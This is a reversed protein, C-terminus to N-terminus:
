YYILILIYINKKIVITDRIKFYCPKLTSLAWTFCTKHAPICCIIESRCFYIISWFERCRFWWFIEWLLSGTIPENPVYSFNIVFLIHSHRSHETFVHLFCLTLIFHEAGNEVVLHCQRVAFLYKWKLKLLSVSSSEYIIEYTLKMSYLPDFYHWKRLTVNKLFLIMYCYASYM